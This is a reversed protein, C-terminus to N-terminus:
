EDSKGGSVCPEALRGRRMCRPLDGYSFAWRTDNSIAVPRIRSYMWRASEPSILVTPPSAVSIYCGGSALADGSRLLAPTEGKAVGKHTSRLPTQKASM